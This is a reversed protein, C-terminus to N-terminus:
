TNQRLLCVSSTRGPERNKYENSSGRVDRICFARMKPSIAFVAEVYLHLKKVQKQQSVLQSEVAELQSKVAELETTKMEDLYVM